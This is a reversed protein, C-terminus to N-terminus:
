PTIVEDYSLSSIEPFTNYIFRMIDKPGIDIAEKLLRARDLIPEFANEESLREANRKGVPTLILMVAKGNTDIRVMNKAALLNLFRRYRHDWPGFRYRVMQAEVTKREFAEIHIRKRSVHRALMAKEFYSPYRLLFDLKALKTIGEIAPAGSERDFAFLLLLIRGLHTEEDRDLTTVIEELTV